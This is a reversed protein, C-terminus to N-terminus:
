KAKLRVAGDFFRLYFSGSKEVPVELYRRTALIPDGELVSPDLAAGNENVWAHPYARGDEIVLGVSVTSRPRRAAEERALVLCRVRGVKKPKGVGRPPKTLWRAEAMPPDLELEGSPMSVGRVFPNEAPPQTAAAARTWHASGVTIDTLREQDDYHAVFTENELTGEAIGPNTKEVCLREPKGTREELVMRCGAMPKHLLYLVEPVPDDARLKLEVVRTRPGEELFHRAEYVYRDGVVSVRLEAVPFGAVELAFRADEAAPAAALVSLLLAIVLGSESVARGSM